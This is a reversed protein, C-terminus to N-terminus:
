RRVPRSIDYDRLDVPRYRVREFRVEDGPPVTADMGIKTVTGSKGDEAISVMPNLIHGEENPLILLGTDPNFRTTIAWDVDVPDYIDVDADVVVVRQLSRFVAFAERIIAQSTGPAPADVQIVAQYFGCGGPPLFVATVEPHRAKLTRYIAAEATLGVTNWVEPGSLVTHLVPSQRHTIAKVRMVWRQDRGGYFGTVEGFPGEPERLGPLVEAEIVFQSNAFAPVEVTRGRVMDLPRGLLHQAVHHKNDGLRPLAAAFWTALGTGNCISVELPVQREEAIQVYEGLHRGPDILFTLRDTGTVMLRHVSINLGGSRPNRAVVLSADLYRGGDKLAHQPIPLAHLDPSATIVENAPAMELLRPSFAAPDKKWASVADAIAFPVQQASLGFLQGVTDRDALLGSLVPFASGRVREFLVCGTGELQRAIGALELVPDVESRVRILKGAQDLFDICANLDALRDAVSIGHEDM